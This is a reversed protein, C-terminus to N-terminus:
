LGIALGILEWGIVMRFSGHRHKIPTINVHIPYIQGRVWKNNYYPLVYLCIRIYITM